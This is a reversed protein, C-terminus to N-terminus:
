FIIIIFVQRIKNDDFLYFILKLNIDRRMNPLGNMIEYGENEPVPIGMVVVEEKLNNIIEKLETQEKELANIRDGFKNEWIEIDELNNIEM